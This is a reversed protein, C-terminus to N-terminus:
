PTCSSVLPLTAGHPRTKEVPTDLTINKVITDGMQGLPCTTINSTSERGPEVGTVQMKKEQSYPQLFPGQLSDSGMGKLGIPNALDWCTSCYKHEPNLPLM